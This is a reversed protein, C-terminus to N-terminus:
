NWTWRGPRRRTTESVRPWGLGPRPWNLIHAVPRVRHVLRQAFAALTRIRLSTPAEVAPIVAALKAGVEMHEEVLIHCQVCNRIHGLLDQREQTELAGLVYGALSNEAQTHDM